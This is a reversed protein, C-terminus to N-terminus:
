PKQIIKGNRATLLYNGGDQNHLWIMQGGVGDMTQQLSLGVFPTKRGTRSRWLVRGDHDIAWVNDTLRRGAGVRLCIVLVEDTELVSGIPLDFKVAQGAEPLVIENRKVVYSM